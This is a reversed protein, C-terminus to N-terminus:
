SFQFQCVAIQFSVVTHVNILPSPTFTTNTPVPFIFAALPCAVTRVFFNIRLHPFKHQVAGIFSNPVENRHGTRLSLVFTVRTLLSFFPAYKQTHYTFVLPDRCSIWTSCLTCRAFSVKRHFVDLKTSM